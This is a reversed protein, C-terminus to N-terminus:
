DSIDRIGQVPSASKFRSCPKNFLVCRSSSIVVRRRLLDNNSGPKTYCLLAWYLNLFFDKYLAPLGLPSMWASLERTVRKTNERLAVYPVAWKRQLYFQTTETVPPEVTHTSVNQLLTHTHTSQRWASNTRTGTHASLVWTVLLRARIICMAILM